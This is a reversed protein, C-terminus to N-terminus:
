HNRAFQRRWRRNTQLATLYFRTIFHTITFLLAAQLLGALPKVHHLMGNLFCVGVKYKDIPKKATDKHPFGSLGFPPPKGDGKEADM